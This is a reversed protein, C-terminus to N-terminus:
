MKIIRIWYFRERELFDANNRGDEKFNILAENDVNNLIKQAVLLYRKCM